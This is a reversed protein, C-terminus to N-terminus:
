NFDSSSLTGTMGTLNILMDTATSVNSHTDNVYLYTGKAAGALVTFVAAQIVSASSANMPNIEAALDIFNWVGAVDDASAIPRATNLHITYGAPLKIKDTGAAFDTIHIIGAMGRSAALMDALSGGSGRQFSYVDAGEGGTLVDQQNAYHYLLFTDDGKGGDIVDKGQGGEFTDSGDSGKITVGPSTNNYNLRISVGGGTIGSADIHPDVGNMTLNTLQLGANGSLTLSKADPATLGDIVHTIGNASNGTDETVLNLIEIGSVNPSQVTHGVEGSVKLTLHDTLGSDDALQAKIPMTVDAKFTLTTNDKLNSLLIQPSSDRPQLASTFIIESISNAVTNSATRNLNGIDITGNFVQATAATIELIEFGKVKGAFAQDATATRADYYNLSLTDVGDGGDVVANAGLSDIGNNFSAKDKGGGLTISTNLDASLNVFDAGAGGKFSYNSLDPGLTVGGTSASADIDAGGALYLGNITTRDSGTIAIKTCLSANILNIGFPKDSAISIKEAKFLNLDGLSFANGTLSIKAETAEGDEFRGSSLPATEVKYNLNLTRTGPDAYVYVGGSTDTLNLTQLPLKAFLGLQLSGTAGVVTIDTLTKQSSAAYDGVTLNTAGNVTLSKVNGQSSFVTTAANTRQYSVDQLGVWDRVDLRMVQQDNSFVLKEINRVTVGTPLGSVNGETTLILTDTGEGGDLIDGSNFTSTTDGVVGKFTDNGAEGTLKDIGTTLIFTQGPPTGAGGGGGVSAPPSLIDGVSKDVATVTPVSAKDATVTSLFGRGKEAAANGVYAAIERPTDLSRTFLNAAAEKNSIIDRDSGQAGDLVAIAITNISFTGKELANVFFALGQADPERNFLSLYIAKVVEANSKGTFRDQYEKTSTLDGIGSLNAGNQTVQNFYELGQPDAPRGFLAIYIGQISAM